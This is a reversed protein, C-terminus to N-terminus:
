APRYPLYVPEWTASRIRADVEADLIHPADGSSVLSRGVARAVQRAVERLKSLPPYIPAGPGAAIPFEAVAGAAAAFASDPLWCAEVATAGLGIGPFILANNGQGIQYHIDGHVVDPFPSGTGVVAAGHTWRLLNEPTAECLSTPNSLPLIIPRECGVQMWRVVQETFAGPQGSVGLLATPRFHEIVDLLGPPSPAGLWDTVLAPDAAIDRKEGELGPRDALVLGRSDLCLVRRNLESEPVGQERLTARLALACGAGAAGAGYLVIREDGWHRGVRALARRMGAVVVAGTGQIDDNFSLLRRRYRELVRFANHKAFDEWQVLAGPYISLIAEVLEDLLSFYAEGKLRPERVGLYLPDDLLAANDTGVDFDLPLARAPHIGAGATYLALKGIAIGMGGVGQDGIGLIAENDTIVIVRCGERRQNSLVEAIRGRDRSSVYVGRPRRYIHSYQECVKGVTPTYVIPVMEELHHSLLRYFLTENRDQLAALTLYRQIDDTARRYHGYAREEQEEPTAVDPPLLGRLGLADREAEPFCTGKNLIPDDRLATGSGFVTVYKEGTVPVKREEFRVM